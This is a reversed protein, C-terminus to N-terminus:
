QSHCATLVPFLPVLTGLQSISGWFKFLKNYNASLQHQFLPVSSRLQSIPAWFKSQDLSWSEFRVLVHVTLVCFISCIFICLVGLAICNLQYAIEQISLLPSIKNSTENDSQIRYLTCVFTFVFQHLSKSKFDRWSRSLNVM